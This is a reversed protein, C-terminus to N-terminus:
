ICGLEIKKNNGDILIFDYANLEHKISILNIKQFKGRIVGKYKNSHSATQRRMHIKARNSLAILTQRRVILKFDPKM